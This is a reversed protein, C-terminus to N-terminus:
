DPASIVVMFHWLTSHTFDEGPSRIKLKYGGAMDVPQLTINLVAPENIAMFHIVAM